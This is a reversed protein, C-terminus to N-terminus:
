STCFQLSFTVLWPVNAICTAKVSSVIQWHTGAMAVTLAHCMVHADSQGDHGYAPLSKSLTQQTCENLVTRANRAKASRILM